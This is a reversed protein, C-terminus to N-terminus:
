QIGFYYYFIISKFINRLIFMLNKGHGGRMDGPVLFNLQSKKPSKKYKKV